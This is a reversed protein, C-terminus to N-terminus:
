LEGQIRQLGLEVLLRDPRSPDDEMSWEEWHAGPYDAAVKAAVAAFTADSMVASAWYHTAPEAGTPSLGVTFSRDGGEPDWQLADQNARAQDAAPIVILCRKM